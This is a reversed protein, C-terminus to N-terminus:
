SILKNKLAALSIMWYRYSRKPDHSSLSSDSYRKAVSFGFRATHLCARFWVDSLVCELAEPAFCKAHQNAKILTMLWSEAQDLRSQSMGLRGMVLQRHFRLEEPLPSLGLPVFQARIVRVAQEDMASWDSGTLSQGHVRYNLLVEPLNAGQVHSLARTWLEFDETPFYSGDFRLHHQEVLNKRLMVSPHAFPTDLLTFARIEEHRTPRELVTKSSDGFYRIWTGCLGIEPHDNLFRAQTELRSPLSIDDADMRAVYQGQANDLGLNLAGSLKLREHSQILRIRSDKFNQIIAISNDTSADDVILFEFNKLSQRLMSDMAEALYAAGNHVPMLITVLPTM